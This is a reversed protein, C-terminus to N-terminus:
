IFLDWRNNDGHRRQYLDKSLNKGRLLRSAGIFPFTATSGASTTQHTANGYPLGIYPGSSSVFDGTNQSWSGGYTISSDGDDVIMVQGLLPTNQGVTVVVYDVAINPIRTLTINHTGEPLMPSQHLQRFSQPSPDMFSSNTAPGGDISFLCWQSGKQNPTIGFFAM